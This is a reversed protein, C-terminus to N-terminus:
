PYTSSNFWWEAGIGLYHHIAGRRRVDEAPYQEQAGDNLVSVQYILRLEPRAFPGTGASLTPIIAAKLIAPVLFTDTRASLGNSRHGQYSFEFAQKFGGAVRYSPRLSLTGEYFDDGDYNVSDADSFWDVYAGAILDFRGTGFGASTAIRTSTTDTVSGDQALGSTPTALEGLAAIGTAHRVFLNAFGREGFGWVSAQLGLTTGLESPMLQRVRETDEAVGEGLRHVEGYGVVKASLEGLALPQEARLSGILRVRDMLIVPDTGFEPDAIQIEQYQYANKVQNLGLHGSIRTKGAAGWAAGAGVTNLNDLPWFDLLYIDDGRLMRSGVWVSLDNVGLDRGEVFANRLAIKGDFDGDSHFMADSIALTTVIRFRGFEPEATHYSLDLELYSQEELRPPHAVVALQKGSGGAGDSSATVRGYSGFVFGSPAAAQEAVPAAPPLEDAQLRPSLLALLPILTALSPKM